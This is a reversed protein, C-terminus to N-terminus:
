QRLMPAPLTVAWLWALAWVFKCAFHLAQDAEPGIRRECKAKDIAWHALLEASGLWYSGTVLAVAGGHILAHATLAFFWMGGAGEPESRRKARSLYDGQLPFDCLAHGVFLWFLMQCFMNVLM